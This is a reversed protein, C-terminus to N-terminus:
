TIKPKFGLTNQVVQAPNTGNLQSFAALLTGALVSMYVMPRAYQFLEANAVAPKTQDQSASNDETNTLETIEVPEPTTQLNNSSDQALSKDQNDGSPEDKIKLMEFVSDFTAKAVNKIEQWTDQVKCLLSDIFKSVNSWLAKAIAAGKLMTPKLKKPHFINSAIKIEEGASAAEMNHGKNINVGEAASM